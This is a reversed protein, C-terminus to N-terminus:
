KMTWVEEHSIYDDSVIRAEIESAFDPNLETEEALVEQVVERSSDTSGSGSPSIL